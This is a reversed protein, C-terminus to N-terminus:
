RQPGGGPAAGNVDDNTAAVADENDFGVMNWEDRYEGRNVNWKGDAGASFLQWYWEIAGSAPSNADLWVLPAYVQDYTEVPLEFGKFAIQMPGSSLAYLLPPSLIAVAFYMMWTGHEAESEGDM